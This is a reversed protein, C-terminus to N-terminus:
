LPSPKLLPSSPAKGAAGTPPVTQTVVPDRWTGQITYDKTAAAVAPRRLVWQALYTVAGVIPNILTAILSAGGANVDPLVLVRLDQTTKAIDTSGNISVLALLSKMQLNQTSLVGEKIQADGAISDFAFGESFVDRFDLTLLRPLAQLSLVSLLRGAGPDVKLFQGKALELKIQGTLSPYHLALPSGLWGVRGQLQGKGDKLLGPMGLRALLDGSSQLQWDFQVDVKSPESPKPKSWVGSANLAAEPSTLALKQLRWEQVDAGAPLVLSLQSRSRQNTAQVELRGLKKGTLEFADVAIDLNPLSTQPSDLLQEIRSRSTADPITLRALRAYLTDTSAPNDSRGPRIEAYGSFDTAEANIRWVSSIPTGARTAGLVLHEFHRDSWVLDKVYASIHSPLPLTSATTATPTVAAFVRQWASVDLLALDASLLLGQQVTATRAASSVVLADGVSIHGQWEGSIGAAGVAAGAANKRVLRADLKEGVTLAVQNPGHQEYVMRWSASEPKSLPAPLKLALGVLDSEVRLQYGGQAQPQLAAQYAVAGSAADLLAAASPLLQPWAKLSDVTLTGDLSLREPNGALVVEGGLVQARLNHFQVDAQAFSLQGRLKRLPPVSPSLQVENDMFAISGAVKNQEPALHLQLKVDVAGTAQTQNLFDQMKGPIPTRKVVERVSGLVSGLQAQKSELLIDFVPKQVDNMRVSGKVAVDAFRTDIQDIVLRKGQLDFQARGQRLSPWHPAFALQVDDLAGKANLQTPLNKLAGKFQIRVDQAQGGQVAPIYRNLAALNVQALSSTLELQSDELKFPERQSPLAQWKARATGTADASSFSLDTQVRLGQWNKPQASDWGGLQVTVQSFRGDPPLASVANSSAAALYPAALQALGRWLVDQGTLTASKARSDYSLSLATALQPLESAKAQIRVLKAKDVDLWAAMSTAGDLPHLSPLKPLKPSPLLAQLLSSLVPRDIQAYLQGTWREWQSPRILLPQTFQGKLQMKGGYAVPPTAELWLAHSRLGGQLTLAVNTLRIDKLHIHDMWHVAGGRVVIERQSLLWDLAPSPKGTPQLAFGAVSIVGSASRVVDVNPADIVLQDLAGRLLSLPSVSVQVRGLQLHDAAVSQVDFTPRWGNSTATISGIRLKTGLQESAYAEMRPRLSDINPVIWGYLLGAVLLVALWFLGIGVLLMTALARLARWGGQPLTASQRKALPAGLSPADLM